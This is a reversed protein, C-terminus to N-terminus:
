KEEGGIKYKRIMRRAQRAQYPKAKGDKTPQLTLIEELDEYTAVKHSGKGGERINFGLTELCNIFDDFSINNVSGSMIARYVNKFNAM